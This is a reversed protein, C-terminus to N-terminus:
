YYGYNANAFVKYEWREQADIVRLFPFVAKYSYSISVDAETVLTDMRFSADQYTERITAEQLNMACMGLTEAKEFFLLIGLYLEYSLGEPNEKAMAFDEALAGIQELETTWAEESKMLAIKKGALLARVDLISEALAWATLLGIKVVQILVPNGSTGAFLLAVEEAKAMKEPDSVLYIFNAAERIALLKAAVLKLNEVDSDKQAILYELEYSLARDSKVERFNSMYSRLYQQLLIGDKWDTTVLEKSSGTELERLLVGESFDQQLESLQSTDELVLELIGKEKWAKATELTSEVDVPSETNTNTNTNANGDATENTNTNTMTKETISRASIGEKAAEMQQIEELAGDITELNMENSSMISKIAEYQSYLEKASEYILNEQMYASVSKVFVTGGGDTLLTYTNLSIEEPQMQLLNVGGLRGNATQELIPEIQSLSNGLLRYNEWLCTNYNAFASELAANTQLNAFRRMEQLRTGELLAFLAATILLLSLLSFITISGKEQRM